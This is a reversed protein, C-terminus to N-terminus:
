KIHLLKLTRTTYFAYKLHFPAHQIKDAALIEFEFEILRICCYWGGGNEIKFNEKIGKYKKDSKITKKKRKKKPTEAYFRSFQFSRLSNLNKSSEIKERRTLCILMLRM